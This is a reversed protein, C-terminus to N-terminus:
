GPSRPWTAFGSALRPDLSPLNYFITDASVTDPLEQEPATLTDPVQATDPPEQALGRVPSGLTLSLAALCGLSLRAGIGCGSRLAHVLAPVSTM